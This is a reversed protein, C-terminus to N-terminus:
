MTHTASAELGRADAWEGQVYTSRCTAMNEALRRTDEALRGYAEMGGDRMGQLAETYGGQLRRRKTKARPVGGRPRGLRHYYM